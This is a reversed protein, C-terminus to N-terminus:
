LALTKYLGNMLTVLENPDVEKIEFEALKPAIALFNPKQVGAIEASIIGDQVLSFM